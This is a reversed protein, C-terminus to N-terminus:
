EFVPRDFVPAGRKTCVKKDGWRQNEKKLRELKDGPFHLSKSVPDIEIGLFAMRTM